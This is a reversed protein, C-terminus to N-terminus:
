TRRQLTLRVANFHPDSSLLFFWCFDRGKKIKTQFSFNAHKSEEQWGALDLFCRSMGVVPHHSAEPMNGESAIAILERTGLLKLM